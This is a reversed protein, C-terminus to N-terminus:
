PPHSRPSRPARARRASGGRGRCRGGNGRPRAAREVRLPGPEHVDRADVVGIQRELPHAVLMPHQDVHVVPAARKELDQRQHLAVAARIENSGNAALTCPRSSMAPASSALMCQISRSIALTGAQDSRGALMAIALVSSTIQMPREETSRYPSCTPPRSSSMALKALYTPPQGVLMEIPVARSPSLGPRIVATPSSCMPRKM